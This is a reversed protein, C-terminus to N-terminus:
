RQPSRPRRPRGRPDGRRPPLPSLRIMGEVVTDRPRVATSPLLPCRWPMYEPLDMDGGGNYPPTVDGLQKGDYYLNLPELEGSEERCFIEFVRRKGLNRIALHYPHLGFALVHTWGPAHSGIWVAAQEQIRGYVGVATKLDCELRSNPDVRLLRALDEQDDSEVWLAHFGQDLWQGYEVLLDWQNEAPHDQEPNLM